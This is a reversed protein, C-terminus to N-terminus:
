PLLWVAGASLPGMVEAVIDTVLGVRSTHSLVGRPSVLFHADEPVVHSATSPLGTKDIGMNGPVVSQICDLSPIVRSENFMGMNGPVVSQICDLSPIVRSENFLAKSNHDDRLFVLRITELLGVCWFRRM